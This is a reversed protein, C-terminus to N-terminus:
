VVPAKYVNLLNVIEDDDDDDNDYENVLLRM